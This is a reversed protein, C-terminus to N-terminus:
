IGMLIRFIWVLEWAEPDRVDAYAKLFQELKKRRQAQLAVEFRGNVM